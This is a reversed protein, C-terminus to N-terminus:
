KGGNMYQMPSKAMPPINEPSASRKHERLSMRLNDLQKAGAETDGDGLASVSDADFIYEGPSLRANVMDDQGGGEGRVIGPSTAVQSLAGQPMMQPEGEMALGGDAHFWVHEGGVIPARSVDGKYPVIVPAPTNNFFKDASAQQTPTWSNLPNKLSAVQDQLNQSAQKKHNYYAGLMSMGAMLLKPNSQLSKLVSSLAGPTALASDPVGANSVANASDFSSQEDPTIASQDGFTPMNEPDFSSTDTNAVDPSDSPFLFDSDALGGDAFRALGGKRMAASPANSNFWTHEGGGGQLPRRSVDGDDNNFMSNTNGNLDLGDLTHTAPTNSGTPPTSGGGAGGNGSGSTVLKTLAGLGTKVLNPDIGSSSGTGAGAGSLLTDNSNILDANNAALNNSALNDANTQIGSENFTPMDDPNFTSSGGGSNALADLGAGTLGAYGAGSAGAGAGVGFGAAGGGVAPAAASGLAGGANAGLTGLTDSSILGTGTGAGGGVVGATDGLSGGVSGTTGATNGATGAVVSGDAALGAGAFMAIASAIFRRLSKGDGMQDREDMASYRMNGNPDNEVDLREWPNVTQNPDGYFKGGGVPKFGAESMGALAPMHGGAQAASLDQQTIGNRLYWAADRGPAYMSPDTSNVPASGTNDTTGNNKLYWSQDRVPPAISPASTDFRSLAGSNLGSDDLVRIGTPTITSLAGTNSPTGSDPMMPLSM